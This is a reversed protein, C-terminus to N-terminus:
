WPCEVSLRQHHREVAKQNEGRVLAVSGELKVLAKEKRYTSRSHYIFITPQKIRGIPKM